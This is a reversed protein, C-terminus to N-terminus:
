LSMGLTDVGGTQLIDHGKWTLPRTPFHLEPMPPELSGIRDFDLSFIQLLISAFQRYIEEMEYDTLDERLLRTGGDVDKLLDNLSVGDQIFEMVIFPGLGLPNQISPGWAHIRPVPVTTEQRILKIVAVEMAVKEDAYSDHVRGVRPFRVLWTTCDDFVLKVGANYSGYCLNNDALRCHLRDPHLTSAWSCLRGDRHADNLRAEWLRGQVKHVLELREDTEM